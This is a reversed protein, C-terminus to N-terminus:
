NEKMVIKWVKKRENYVNECNKKINYFSTNYCYDLEM